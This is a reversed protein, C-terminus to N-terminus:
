SKGQYPRSMFPLFHLKGGQVIKVQNNCHYEKPDRANIGSIVFFQVRNSEHILPSCFFQSLVGNITNSSIPVMYKALDVQILTM